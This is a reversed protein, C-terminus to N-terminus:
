KNGCSKGLSKQFRVNHTIYIDRNKQVRFVHKPLKKPLKANTESLNRGNFTNKKKYEKQKSFSTKM